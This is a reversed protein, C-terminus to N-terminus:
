IQAPNAAYKNNLLQSVTGASRNMRAAVMNQSTAACEIALAEIWDPLDARWAARAIELPSQKQAAPRPESPRTAPQRPAPPPPRIM